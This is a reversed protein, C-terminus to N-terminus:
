KDKQVVTPPIDNISKLIKVVKKGYDTLTYETQVPVDVTLSKEIIGAKYLAALSNTLSVPNLSLSKKIDTFRMAKNELIELAISSAWKKGFVKLLDEIILYSM